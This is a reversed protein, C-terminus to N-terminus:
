HRFQLCYFHICRVTFMDWNHAQQLKWNHETNETIKLPCRCYYVLQVSVVTLKFNYWLKIEIINHWSFIYCFIQLFALPTSVKTISYYQGLVTSHINNSSMFDHKEVETWGWEVGTAAQWHCCKGATGQNSLSCTQTYRHALNSQSEATIKNFSGFSLELTLM